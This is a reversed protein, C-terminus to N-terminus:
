VDCEAPDVVLSLSRGEVLMDVRVESESRGSVEVVMAGVLSGRGTVVDDDRRSLSRGGVLPPPSRRRVPVPLETVLVRLRRESVSTSM